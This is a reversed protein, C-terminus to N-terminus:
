FPIEILLCAHVGTINYFYESPSTQFCALTIKYDRKM